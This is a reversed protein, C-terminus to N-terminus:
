RLAPTASVTQNKQPKQPLTHEKIHMKNKVGSSEQMFGPTCM